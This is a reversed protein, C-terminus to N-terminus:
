GAAPVAPAAPANIRRVATSGPGVALISYAAPDQVVRERYERMPFGLLQCLRIRNVHNHAVVIACRGRDEGAWADIADLIPLSRAAVDAGSEGGPCRVSYPDAVWAARREPDRAECEEPSLGDWEGYDIEWLGAETELRDPPVDLAAAVEAITERCRRAPSAVLRLESVPLRALEAALTLGLARALERGEATLPLDTSRGLNRGAASAETISHRALVSTGM